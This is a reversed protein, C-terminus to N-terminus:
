FGAPLPVNWARRVADNSSDSWRGSRISELFFGGGRFLGGAPSFDGGDTNLGNNNWVM